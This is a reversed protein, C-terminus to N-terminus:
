TERVGPFRDRVERSPVMCKKRKGFLRYRHRAFVRYFYDRVPRPIIRFVNFLWWLGKLDKTIELVADTRVYGRGNKLLVLTDVGADGGQEIGHGSMLERGLETQIPVFAFKGEPDRAIIFNVARNCFNCVGDFIVIHRNDM